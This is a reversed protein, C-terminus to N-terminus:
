YNLLIDCVTCNIQTVFITWENVISMQIGNSVVICAQFPWLGCIFTVLSLLKPHLLMRLDTIFLRWFRLAALHAHATYISHTHRAAHYISTYLFISSHDLCPFTLRSSGTLYILSAALLQLKPMTFCLLSRLLSINEFRM